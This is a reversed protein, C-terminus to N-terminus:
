IDNNIKEGHKESRKLIIYIEFGKFVKGDTVRYFYIKINSGFIKGLKDVLIKIIKLLLYVIKKM